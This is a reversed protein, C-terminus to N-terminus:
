RYGSDWIIQEPLGAELEVEVLQVISGQMAPGMTQLGSYVFNNYSIYELSFPLDNLYSRHKEM